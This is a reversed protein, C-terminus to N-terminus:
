CFMHKISSHVRINQRCFSSSVFFLLVNTEFLFSFFTPALLTERRLSRDNGTCQNSQVDCFQTSPCVPSCPPTSQFFTPDNMLNWSKPQLAYMKQLLKKSNLMLLFVHTLKVYSVNQINSYTNFNLFVTYIGCM